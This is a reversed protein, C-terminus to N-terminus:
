KGAVIVVDKRKKAFDFLSPQQVKLTLRQSGGATAASTGDEQDLQKNQSLTIKTSEGPAVSYSQVKNANIEEYLRPVREVGYQLWESIMIAADKPKFDAQRPEIGDRLLAYTLL